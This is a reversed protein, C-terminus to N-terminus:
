VNSSSFSFCFSLERAIQPSKTGGRGSISAGPRQGHRQKEKFERVLDSIILVRHRFPHSEFERFRETRRNELGTGDVVRGGKRKGIMFSFFGQGDAPNEM